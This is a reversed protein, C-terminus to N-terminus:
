VPNASESTVSAEDPCIAFCIANLESFLICNNDASSSIGRRTMDAAIAERFSEFGQAPCYGLYGNRVHRDIAERVPPAVPCEMEGATVPIVDNAVTAWRLNFATQRLIGQDVASDCFYSTDTPFNM